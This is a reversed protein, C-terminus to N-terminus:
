KEYNLAEWLINFVELPNAIKATCAKVCRGCGVCGLEGLMDYIYKGKRMYRHRYREFAQGRFNHGGAIKAFGELMCGDWTRYRRGKELKDDVDDQIDFCYCTPCVFNCSGCALCKRAKETWLYSDFSKEMVKPVEEWPYKLINQKKALYLIEKHKRRATEKEGATAKDVKGNVFLLEEGLGSGVEVLFTAPGIKTWYLDFGFDVQDADVFAWFATDSVRLPDLGMIVTSDRRARYNVDVSGMDMLQDLQNIAKIDYPHVGFLIQPKSKIIPKSEYSKLDFEILDEYPPFLFEKLPNYIVDYDFCVEAGEEYEELFYFQDKKQPVFLRFKEKWKAFLRPLQELYVIYTSM